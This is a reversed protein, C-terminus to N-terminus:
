DDQTPARRRGDRGLGLAPAEGYLTMKVVAWKALDSNLKFFCNGEARIMDGNCTEAHRACVCVGCLSCAV